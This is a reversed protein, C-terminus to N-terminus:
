LLKCYLSSLQNEVHSPLHVKIKTLSNNGMNEANQKDKMLKKISDYIAKKDGPTILYGNVGDKVIEPIGGVNTSIIPLGYSEAELISIPLGEHYSPLIYADSSNLLNVKKEGSVWGEYKAIDSLGKDNIIQITKDIEGNGGILLELKGKFEAKHEAIVDLLDYIGKNDGLKGLFLLTFNKHPIRNLHPEAIVNKIVVVNKCHLTTEFWKKWWESLAIICDCKNITESVFRYNDQTFEPFKGGHCHFVVKKGYRKAVNIFIRKRKFSNGSGSHVHVIKIEKHFLMWWLFLVYARLFQVLKIFKGNNRAGVTAIHNFPKYFTSYVNEVAAIGGRVPKYAIGITLIHRADM